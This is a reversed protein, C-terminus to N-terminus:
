KWFNNQMFQSKLSQVYDYKCQEAKVRGESREIDMLAFVMVMVM